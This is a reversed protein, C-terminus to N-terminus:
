VTKSLIQQVEERTVDEYEENKIVIQYLQDVDPVFAKLSNVLAQLGKKMGEDRGKEREEQAHRQMEVTSITSINKLIEMTEDTHRPNPSGTPVRSYYRENKLFEAVIGFDSKFMALQEDPLWAINFINPKFDAIFDDLEDPICLMHKMLRPQFKEKTGLYLVLSVVPIIGNSDGTEMEDLQFGYAASDNVFARFAIDENGRTSDGPELLAISFIAHKKWRKQSAKLVPEQPFGDSQSAIVVPELEGAQVIYKGKFLLVNIIDAFVDPYDILNKGSFDTLIKETEKEKNM